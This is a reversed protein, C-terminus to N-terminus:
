GGGDLWNLELTRPLFGMVPLFAMVPVWANVQFAERGALYIFVTFLCRVV